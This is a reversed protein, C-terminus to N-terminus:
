GGLLGFDIQNAIHTPLQGPGNGIGWYGKSCRVCTLYFQAGIRQGGIATEGNPRRHYNRECSAQNAAEDAMAKEHAKLMQFAAKASTEVDKEKTRRAALRDQIDLIQQARAPDTQAIEAIEDTSLFIDRLPPKSTSTPPQLAPM